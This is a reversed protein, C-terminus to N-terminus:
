SIISFPVLTATKIVGASNIKICIDGADGYGTGNSMWQYATNIAVDGDAPEAEAVWIHPENWEDGRIRDDAPDNPYTVTDWTTKHRM